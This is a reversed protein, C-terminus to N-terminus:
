SGTFSDVVKLDCCFGLDGGEFLCIVTLYTLPPLSRESGKSNIIVISVDFGLKTCLRRLSHLM